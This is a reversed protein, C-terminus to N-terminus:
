AAEHPYKDPRLDHRTVVGETAREVDLVKEAPVAGKRNRWYWVTQQAVGCKRALASQSGAIAIARDLAKTEAKM